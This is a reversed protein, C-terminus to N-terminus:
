FMAFMLMLLATLILPSFSWAIYLPASSQKSSKSISSIIMGITIVSVAFMLLIFGYFFMWLFMSLAPLVILTMTSIVNAADIVADARAIDQENLTKCQEGTAYNQNNTKFRYSEITAIQEVSFREGCHPCCNSPSEAATTAKM